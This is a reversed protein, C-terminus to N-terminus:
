RPITYVDTNDVGPVLPLISIIENPDQTMMGGTPKTGSTPPMTPRSFGPTAVPATVPASPASFRNEYWQQLPGAVDRPTQPMYANYYRQIAAYYDSGFQPTTSGINADSPPLTGTGGTGTGAGANGALAGGGLLTLLTTLLRPDISPTTGTSPPTTTPPNVPPPLVTPPIYPPFVVPPTLPEEARPPERRDVVEVTESAPPTTPIAPVIGPIITEAVPPVTVPTERRDTVEVTESAAPSTTVAPVLSPVVAGVTEATTPSTAPRTAEITTTQTPGTTTSPATPVVAGVVSGATAPTTPAAPLPTATVPVTETAGSLLGSAIAPVTAAVTSPSVPGTQTPQFTQGTVQVQPVTPAALSPAVTGLLSSVNSLLGTGANQGTVIVQEAAGPAASPATSAATPASGTFTLNGVENIIQAPSLGDVAAAAVNAAISPTVGAAQLVANIQAEGLGQGALQAADAAIFAADTNAAAGSPFVQGLGYAVAGGLAAAQLAQQLDATNAFNTVGAGAAAAAPVSLGVGAPGLAVTTGAAIAANALTGLARDLSTQEFQTSLQETAQQGTPTFGAALYAGPETEIFGQISGDGQVNYVVGDRSFTGVIADAFRPDGAKGSAALVEQAQAALDNGSSFLGSFSQQAPANGTYEPSKMFEARVMEPTFGLNDMANLWFSWGEQDPTRGLVNEYLEYLATANSM